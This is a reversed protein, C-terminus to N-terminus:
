GTPLTPQSLIITCAGSFFGYLICFVVLGGVSKAGLMAFILIGAIACFPTVLNFPGYIDALFNPLTRGLM